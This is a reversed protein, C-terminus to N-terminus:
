VSEGMGRRKAHGFSWRLGVVGEENVSIGAEALGVEELRNGVIDALVVGAVLNAIDRGLLEEVLVDIGDPLGSQGFEFLAVAFNVNEKKVVNLEDFALLTELLLEEM